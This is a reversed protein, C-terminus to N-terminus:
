ARQAHHYTAHEPPRALLQSCCAQSITSSTTPLLELSQIFYDPLIVVCARKHYRTTQIQDFSLHHAAHASSTPQQGTCCHHRDPTAAAPSIPMLLFAAIPLLLLMVVAYILVESEATTSLWLVCPWRCVAVKHHLQVQAAKAKWMETQVKAYGQHCITSYVFVPWLCTHQYLSPLLLVDSGAAV